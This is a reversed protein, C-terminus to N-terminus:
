DIGLMGALDRLIDERIITHDEGTLWKDFRGNEGYWKAFREKTLLELVDDLQVTEGQLTKYSKSM